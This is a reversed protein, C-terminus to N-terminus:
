FSGETNTLRKQSAQTTSNQTDNKPFVAGAVGSITNAITQTGAPSTLINIAEAKLSDKSLGKFNKYTNVAKLATGLFGQGSSFATGDGIAGFV